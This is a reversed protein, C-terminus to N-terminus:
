LNPEVLSNIEQFNLLVKKSKLSLRSTLIDSDNQSTNKYTHRSGIKKTKSM